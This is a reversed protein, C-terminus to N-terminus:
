RLPWSHVRRWTRGGDESRLLQWRRRADNDRLLLYGLRESVLWGSTGERVEPDTTRIPRWNRGGDRTRFSYGRSSWLLGAGRPTFSMGLPYGSGALGGLRRKAPEFFVNLLRKWTAGGDRTLYLAKSQQGLGPQGKCLVWGRDASTFWISATWAFGGWGKRCPSGARHWTRGGDTTKMLDGANTPRAAM